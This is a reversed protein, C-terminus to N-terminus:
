KFDRILDLHGLCDRQKIDKLMDPNNAYQNSIGTIYCDIESRIVEWESTPLRAVLILVRNRLQDHSADRCLMVMTILNSISKSDFWLQRDPKLGYNDYVGIENERAMGLLATFSKSYSM